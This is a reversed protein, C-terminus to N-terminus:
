PTKAKNPDPWDKLEPIPQKFELTIWLSRKNKTPDLDPITIIYEITWKAGAAEVEITKVNPSKLLRLVAWPGPFTQPLVDPSPNAATNEKNARFVFTISGDAPYKVPVSEPDTGLFTFDHIVTADDPQKLKM